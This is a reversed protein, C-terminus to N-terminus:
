NYCAFFNVKSMYLVLREQDSRPDWLLGAHL